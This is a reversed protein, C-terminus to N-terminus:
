NDRKADSSAHRPLGKPLVIRKGHAQSLPIVSKDNSRHRQRVEQSPSPCYNEGEHGREGRYHQLSENVRQLDVNFHFISYIITLTAFRSVILFFNRKHCLGKLAVLGLSDSFTFRELAERLQVWM